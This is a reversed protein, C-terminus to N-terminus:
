TESWEQKVLIQMKIVGRSIRTCKSTQSASVRPVSLNHILRWEFM